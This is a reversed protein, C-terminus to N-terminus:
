SQIEIPKELNLLFERWEECKSYEEFSKIFDQQDCWEVYKERYEKISELADEVGNYDCEGKSNSPWIYSALNGEDNLYYRCPTELTDTETTVVHLNMKNRYNLFGFIASTLLYTVALALFVYILVKKM